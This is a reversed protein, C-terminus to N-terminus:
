SLQVNEGFNLPPTQYSFTRFTRHTFAVSPLLSALFHAVLFWLLAIHGCRAAHPSHNHGHEVDRTQVDGWEVAM